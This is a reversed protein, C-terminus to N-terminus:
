SGNFYYKPLLGCPNAIDNAVDNNESKNRDRKTRIPHCSDVTDSDNIYSGYLQDNNVSTSFRRHNQYLNTIEYYVHIPKEMDLQCTLKEEPAKEGEAAYTVVVEKAYQSEYFLLGSVGLFITGFIIFTIATKRPSSKPRWGWCTNQKFGSNSLEEYYKPHSHDENM